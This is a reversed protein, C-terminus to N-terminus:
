ITVVFLRTGEVEKKAWEEELVKIRNSENELLKRRQEVERRAQKQVLKDHEDLLYQKLESLENLKAKVKFSDQHPPSKLPTVSPTNVVADDSRQLIAPEIEEVKGYTM